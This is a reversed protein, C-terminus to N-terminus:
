LNSIFGRKLRNYVFSGFLVSVLALVLMILVNQGSPLRNFYLVDRISEMYYYLPNLKFIWRYQEPVFDITYAVPTIYFLAPGMANWLFMVDRFFVNLSSMALAFGFIFFSFIISVPIILLNHFSFEAGTFFMLIVFPILSLYLNVFGAVLTGMPFYVPPVAMAKLLQASEIVSTLIQSTTTNFFIWFLMGSLAYVPYNEVDGVITSFIFTFIVVYIIPHLLTWVYGLISNKYRIRLFKLGLQYILRYDKLLQEM